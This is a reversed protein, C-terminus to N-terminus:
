FTGPICEPGLWESRETVRSLGPRLQGRRRRMMPAADHFDLQVKVVRRQLHASRVAAERAMLLPAIGEATPQNVDAGGAIENEVGDSNKREVYHLLRAIDSM